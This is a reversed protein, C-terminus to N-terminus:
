FDQKTASQLMRDGTNVVTFVSAVPRWACM